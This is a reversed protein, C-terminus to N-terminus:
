QEAMAEALAVLKKRAGRNKIGLFAKTLALGDTTALFDRTFDLAPAESGHGGSKVKPMGEFFWAVPINLITSIQSLRSAGIRNAGKEYKQVQQFTVGLGDGLDTQSLGRQLRRLRVRAGVYCDAPNPQKAKM